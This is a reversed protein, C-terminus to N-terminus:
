VENRKEDCISEEEVERIADVSLDKGTGFSRTREVEMGVVMVNSNVDTASDPAGGQDESLSVERGSGMVSELSRMERLYRNTGTLTTTTDFSRTDGRTTMATISTDTGFTRSVISENRMLPKGFSSGGTWGSSLEKTHAPHKQGCRCHPCYTSKPQSGLQKWRRMLPWLTPACATVIALNCEIAAISPGISFNADPDNANFQM